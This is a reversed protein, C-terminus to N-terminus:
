KQRQLEERKLKELLKLQRDLEEDYTGDRGKAGMVWSKPHMVCALIDQVAEVKLGDWGVNLVSALDELEMEGIEQMTVDEFSRDLVAKAVVKMVLGKRDGIADLIEIFGDANPKRMKFSAGNRFSQLSSMAMDTESMNIDM